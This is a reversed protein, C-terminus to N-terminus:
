STQTTLISRVITGIDETQLSTSIRYLNNRYIGITCLNSTGISSRVQNYFAVVTFAKSM